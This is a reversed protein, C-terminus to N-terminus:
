IKHNEIKRKYLSWQKIPDPGMLGVCVVDTLQIMLNNNDSRKLRRVSYKIEVVLYYYKSVKQTKASRCVNKLMQRM